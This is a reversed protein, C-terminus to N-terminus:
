KEQNMRSWIPGWISSEISDYIKYQISRRVSEAVVYKVADRTINWLSDTRSFHNQISKFTVDELTKKM